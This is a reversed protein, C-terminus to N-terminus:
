NAGPDCTGGLTAGGLWAKITQYDADSKQFLHVGAHPKGGVVPQQLLESEEPDSLGLMFSRANDFNEQWEMPTHPSWGVCMVTGTGEDALDVQQPGIPCTPVQSVTEKRRLRGRAYVKYARGTEAGHCGLMSCGRDVIPEVKCKYYEMDLAPLM